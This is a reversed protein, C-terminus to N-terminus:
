KRSSISPWSSAVMIKTQQVHARLAERLQGMLGELEAPDSTAVAQAVLARIKEESLKSEM